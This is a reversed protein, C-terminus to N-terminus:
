DSVLPILSYPNHHLIQTNQLHKSDHLKWSYPVSPSTLLPFLLLLYTFVYIGIFQHLLPNLPLPFCPAFPSPITIITGQKVWM